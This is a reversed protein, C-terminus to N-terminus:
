AEVTEVPAPAEVELWQALVRTFEDNQIPKAIHDDMGSELCRERDGQMTNATLAIIPTRRGDKEAARIAATARYGDMVPMMCDMLILDYRTRADAEVAQVGNSVMHVQCGLKRVKYEIVKQNVKNDEAVLVLRGQFCGERVPGQRAAARAAERAPELEVTFWFTSGQGPVSSLGIEGGMLEVLRKSIALGLGTGGHNRTTSGDAQVFSQFLRRQAEEPIGIGTDAVTFRYRLHGNADGEQRLRLVVEGRETFKVANGLLNLIVQRLRGPDGRVAVAGTEVDLRLTLGKQRTTWEVVRTADTVVDQLLFGINEFALKGAEIKSFDLIDNLLALLAQASRHATEACDRQSPDLQTDLLMEIMGTVGNLPTRIEHSMNALFESKARTAALAQDRAEMLQETQVVLQAAQQEVRQKSDELDLAYHYLHNEATKREHIDRVVATWHAEGDISMPALSVEVPIVRGDKCVGEFEAAVGLDAPGGACFLFDGSNVDEPLRLVTAIDRGPLEWAECGFMRGGAPNCTEIVGRANMTLIGDPATGLVAQIRAESEAVAALMANLASAVRGMEDGGTLPARAKTDGAARRDMAAAILAAPRLVLRHLVAWTFLGLGALGAAMLGTVLWVTPRVQDRLPRADLSVLVAGKTLNVRQRQALLLPTAFCYEHRLADLHSRPERAGVIADLEERVHASPIEDPALGIWDNRSAAVVRRPVGTVVVILKVERQGGMQNVIRILDGPEGVIEATYHLAGTLQEGRQLIQEELLGSLTARTLWTVVAM